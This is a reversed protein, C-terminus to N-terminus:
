LQDPRLGRRINELREKKVLADGIEQYRDANQHDELFRSAAGAVRYPRFDDPSYKIALEARALASRYKELKLYSSGLTTLFAAGIKPGFKIGEGKVRRAFSIARHPDGADKWARAALVASWDRKSVWFEAEFTEARKRLNIAESPVKPDPPELGSVDWQLELLRLQGEQEHYEDAESQLEALVAADIPAFMDELAEAGFDDSEDIAEDDFNDEDSLLRKTM